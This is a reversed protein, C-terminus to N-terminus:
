AVNVAIRHCANNLYGKPNWGPVLMPQTRALEDEARAWVEYYGPKPFAISAQWQQWALRNVPRALEAAQWTQGFDISTQMRTVALDGAWAQGGMTLPQGAPLKVGSRHSTILSKVPMSHIICMAAADVATGPAVPECPVRYSNGLMKAGDHIRDRLLLHTLWKGSVSGPWGGLVLRLPAGHVLPIDEGNLKFALLSEDELAKSIPVGRSIASKSLDNSLHTDAGQFAVYIADDKVGVYSLVDKLRVGTWEPCGIAGTTWQNGPTRPRFEARGNGGCELQLQLTHHTFRSKLDALTISTPRVCSEGEIHLTWPATQTPPIGNNRVFLRSTPTVPDNLLHAPTEANFPRDSLIELEDKGYLARVGAVASAAASQTSVLGALATFSLHSGILTQASTKLARRRSYLHKM